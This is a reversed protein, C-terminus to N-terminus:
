SSGYQVLSHPESLHAVVYGYYGWFRGSPAKERFHACGLAKEAMVASPILRTFTSGRENQTILKFSYSHLHLSNYFLIIILGLITQILIM